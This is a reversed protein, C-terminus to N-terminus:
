FFFGGEEGVVGIGVPGFAEDADDVFYRGVVVRMYDGGFAAAGGVVVHEYCAVRKGGRGAGDGCM